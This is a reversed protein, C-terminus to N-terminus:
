KDWVYRIITEIYLSMGMINIYIIMEMLEPYNVLDAPISSGPMISGNYIIILSLISQIIIISYIDQISNQTILSHIAKIHSKFKGILYLYIILLSLNGLTSMTIIIDPMFVALTLLFLISIIM